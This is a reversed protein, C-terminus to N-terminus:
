CPQSVPAIGLERELHALRAEMAAVRSALASPEATEQAKAKHARTAKQPQCSPHGSARYWEQHEPENLKFRIGGVTRNLARAIDPLAVRAKILTKLAAIQEPTWRRKTSM